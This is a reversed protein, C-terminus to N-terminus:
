DSQRRDKVAKRTAQGKPAIQAQLKWVLKMATRTLQADIVTPGGAIGRVTRNQRTEHEQADVTKACEDM